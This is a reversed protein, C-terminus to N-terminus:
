AHSDDVGQGIQGLNVKYNESRESNKISRESQSKVLGVSCNQMALHALLFINEQTTPLTYLLRRTGVAHAAPKLYKELSVDILYQV